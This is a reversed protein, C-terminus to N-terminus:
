KTVKQSFTVDFVIKIKIKEINVKEFITKSTVKEWFTVKEFLLRSINM